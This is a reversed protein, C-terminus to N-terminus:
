PMPTANLRTLAQRAASGWNGEPQLESARTYHQRAEELRPPEWRGYLQGLYYETRASQPDLALAKKYQAEADFRQNYSTLAQGFALRTELDNPQLAVAREYWVIAGPYDGSNQLINALLLMAQLDNPNDRLRAEYTPVLNPQREPPLGNPQQRSLGTFDASFVITGLVLSFIVGLGVIAFIVKARDPPQRRPAPPPTAPRHAAGRRAAGTPGRYAPTEPRRPPGSKAGM